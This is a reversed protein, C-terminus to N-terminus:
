QNTLFEKKLWDFYSDRGKEGELLPLKYSLKCIPDTALLKLCEEPDYPQNLRGQLADIELQLKPCAELALRIKRNLQYGLYFIHDTLLYTLLMQEQKWYDEWFETLLQLLPFHRKGGMFFCTWRSTIDGPLSDKRQFTFFDRNFVQHHNLNRTFLVTADVWLGGHECLLKARIYDSLHTKSLVGKHYCDMLHGPLDIYQALNEETLVVVTERVPDYHELLSQHCIKVIDPANAFGQDWFTFIRQKEELAM